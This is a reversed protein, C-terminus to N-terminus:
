HIVKVISPYGVCQVFYMGKPLSEVNFQFTNKDLETITQGNVSRIVAGNYPLENDWKLNLVTSAPNPFVSWAVEKAPEVIGLDANGSTSFIPRMMMSGPIPSSLWTIGGNLSYFTKDANDNNRDFGINLRDTDVQRWGVYFPADPLALATDNLYYETFVGRDDEYVPTRPYFFEDEYLVAGPHGGNDAWVTLLFLKDSVDNVSPVFHMKVGLLTDAEYPDFRYALRAQTGVAGFAAEASGDDYAYENGFYQVSYTTDNVTPDAFPASATTLIDFTKEEVPPTTSFVYGGTFDHTSEYITLPNYNPDGNTLVQGLLTFSGEPTGMYSITLEGDNENEPNNSGNRVTIKKQSNMHTPDNVWHDWPVQTYTEILSGVPYVFAFDKFVTDQYGSGTRLKVYDLHFEDLMGSLGGYNKFRFRFGQTFYAAQSIRINASKFDAVGGGNVSWIRDWDSEADDYFELVLSDSAEPIDGFGEKQVLFTLYISDNPVFGSLDIPKSTLFDAYGSATSGFFYPYGSVDLGDFTMVGLTWPNVAHTFNRYASSDVWIANPDTLHATFIRASDQLYEPFSIFITDPDNPFDLTDYINYPPYAQVTSYAFPYSSLNNFKISTPTLDTTTTNGSQVVYRKTVGSTYVTNAPLPNDSVDLLQHFLAESVNPDGPEAYHNQLKSTSFEDLIPLQLTDYTYVFTSDLNTTSKEKVAPKTGRPEFGIPELSVQAISVVSFLLCSLLLIKKM